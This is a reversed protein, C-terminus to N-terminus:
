EETTIRLVEELTTLGSAFIELASDRLSMMGKSVAYKEMEASSIKRIVMDRITDDITLTELVGMRGFYGTSSCYSCGKGRYFPGRKMLKDIETNNAIRELVSRPIDVKEKCRPCIKRALRQAATLILSAAVLFPEVGMDVLRTIAGAANNTHLTSLVLQGTLSAKIAIDATEFDRIEGVMIIDPSQRLLSKLGNAFSLGIEPNAQIQTIGEVQYEVPDEITVINKDATNLKNVISYLTTSKGSGTPGTLLLMGFPKELANKFAKLPQPLFGLKDLGISLNSKDLARLVIKNGFAIPLVSVRFDIEKRGLKIRFRGDQPIRTETIDLKSMIKLRALVANQNEKPLSLAEHLVGDIRYRVKLNKECPEIHIDSARGRLAENLILSVVKVIPAKQSEATVEGVDLKEEELVEVEATEANSIIKAIDETPSGYLRGLSDKIDNDSAIIVDITEIGPSVIARVDDIALIDTPDSMAITLTSGIKSVPVLNHQFALKQPVLKAIDPNITYKSLDIPPINLQESLFAMLDKHTIVNESILIKGISGGKRKHINLIKKLHVKDLIKKQELIDLLKDSLKKM